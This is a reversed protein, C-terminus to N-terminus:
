CEKLNKQEKKSLTKVNKAIKYLDAKSCKADLIRSMRDTEGELSQPDKIFYSEEQGLGTYKFPAEARKLPWKIM